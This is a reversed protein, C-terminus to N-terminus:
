SSIILFLLITSVGVEICPHLNQLNKKTLSWQHTFACLFARRRIFLFDTYIMRIGNAAFGASSQLTMTLVCYFVFGNLM